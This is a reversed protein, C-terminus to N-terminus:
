SAKANVNDLFFKGIEESDSALRVGFRAAWGRVMARMYPKAIPRFPLLPESTLAQAILRWSESTRGARIHRVAMSLRSRQRYLHFASRAIEPHREAIDALVVARSRSMRRWDLSMSTHSERYGVLMEPVLDFKWREAIALHFKMDECGQAGLAFLREDYGGASRAAEMRILPVSANGIFNHALLDQLVWGVARRQTGRGIIRGDDDIISVWTYVLATDASSRRLVALQQEIKRPRWLDDADLPAFFAGQAEMLGRNRAAAVGANSQRILRIRGDLEAKSRVIRSTFDSSGDDVVIIELRSHTQRSVSDLTAGIYRDANYAPVVM